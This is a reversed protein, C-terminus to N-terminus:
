QLQLLFLNTNFITFKTDVYKNILRLDSIDFEFTLQKLWLNKNNDERTLFHNDVYAILITKNNSKNIYYLNHDSSSKIM